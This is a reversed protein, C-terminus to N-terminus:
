LMRKNIMMFRVYFISTVQTRHFLIEKNDVVKFICALFNQVDGQHSLLFTRGINASKNLITMKPVNNDGNNVSTEDKSMNEGYEDEEGERSALELIYNNDICSM